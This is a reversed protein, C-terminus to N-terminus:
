SRTKRRERWPAKINSYYQKAVYCDASHVRFGHAFVRVPSGPSFFLSWIVISLLIPVGFALFVSLYMANTALSAAPMGVLVILLFLQSFLPSAPNYSTILSAWALGVLFHELKIVV